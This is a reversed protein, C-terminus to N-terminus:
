KRGKRFNRRDQAKVIVEDLKAGNPFLYIPITIDGMGAPQVQKVNQGFKSFADLMARLTVQYLKDEPAVIEGHHMNDGIMALQPTNPKVYGGQALKPIAIPNMKPINMQFKKGGLGPVWDPIEIKLNNLTGIIANIGKIVGNALAEIGGIMGNIAGKIGGWMGGVIDATGKKLSNWINLWATKIATMGASLKNKLSTIGTSAANKINNWANVFGNKIAIISDSWARKINAWGNAIGTKISNIGNSAATKLKGLQM